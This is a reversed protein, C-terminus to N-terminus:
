MSPWAHGLGLVEEGASRGGTGDEVAEGVHAQAIETQALREGGQGSALSLAELQGDVHGLLGRGVHQVLRGAAQVQRIDVLEQGQQVPENVIAVRDDHDLMVLGHHGVGVPDDVQTRAGTLVAAPHDEGARGGIQDGRPSESV